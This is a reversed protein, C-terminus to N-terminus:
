RIKIFPPLGNISSGDGYHSDTYYISGDSGTVFREGDRAKGPQKNNIDWEKYEIPNGNSDTKPLRGNENNYNGGAKTGASQGSVNGKWGTKDYKNFADQVNQPLEDVDKEPIPDTDSYDPITSDKEGRGATEEM